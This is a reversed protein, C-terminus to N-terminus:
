FYFSVEDCDRLNLSTDCVSSSALVAFKSSLWGLLSDLGGYDSPIEPCVLDEWDCLFRQEEPVVPKTGQIWNRVNSIIAPGPITREQLKM